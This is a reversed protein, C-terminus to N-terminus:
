TKVVEPSRNEFSISKYEHHGGDCAGKIYPLVCQNCLYLYNSGDLTIRCVVDKSGDYNEIIVIKSFKTNFHEGCAHCTKIM